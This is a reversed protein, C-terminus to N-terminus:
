SVWEEKTFSHQLLPISSGDICEQSAAVKKSPLLLLNWQQSVLSTVVPNNYCSDTPHWLIVAWSSRRRWSTWFVAALITAQVFLVSCMLGTKLLSWQSGRFTYRNCLATGPMCNSWHNLEVTGGSLENGVRFWWAGRNETVMMGAHELHPSSACSSATSRLRSLSQELARSHEGAPESLICNRLLRRCLPSFEGIRLPTSFQHMSQQGTDKEKQKGKKEGLMEKLSKWKRKSVM